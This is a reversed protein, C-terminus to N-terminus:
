LDQNMSQVLPNANGQVVALVFFLDGIRKCPRNEPLSCAHQVFTPTSQFDASETSFPDTRSEVLM